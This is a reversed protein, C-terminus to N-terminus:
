QSLKVKGFISADIWGRNKDEGEVFESGIFSERQTSSDNDCYAIAFGVIKNESLKVPTNKAKANFSDDFLKIASEWTYKNGKKTRKTYVHDNLFLPLSDSGIDAVKYDLAIHYAFANYNYQHNGGSADEDIFIELCDDDWYLDLGEHTDVLIDDEIETLVYLFDNDWCLKFRGSVDTSSVADGIWFQDIKYWRETAKWINETAEGDIIIPQSSKKAIYYDDNPTACSFFFGVISIAFVLKIIKTNNKM